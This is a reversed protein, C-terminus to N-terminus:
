TKVFGYKIRPAIWGEAAVSLAVAYGSSAVSSSAIFHGQRLGFRGSLTGHAALSYWALAVGAGVSDSSIPYYRAVNGVWTYLNRGDEALGWATAADVTSQLMAGVAGTPTVSCVYYVSGSAPKAVIVGTDGVEVRAFSAAGIPPSGISRYKAGDWEFVTIFPAVSHWSVMFKKNPSMALGVPSAGIGGEEILSHSQVSGAISFLYPATTSQVYYREDAGFVVGTYSKGAFITSVNGVSWVASLRRAFFASGAAASFALVNPIGASAGLAACRVAASPNSFFSERAYSYGVSQRLMPTAFPAAAMQLLAYGGYMDLVGQPVAGPSEASGEASMATGYARSMYAQLSVPASADDLLAGDCPLWVPLNYRGPNASYALDGALAAGDCNLKHAISATADSCYLDFGVGARVLYLTDARLEGPLAGVVKAARFASM